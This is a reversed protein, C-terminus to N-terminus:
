NEVADRTDRVTEPAARLVWVSLVGVCALLWLLCILIVSMIFFGWHCRAFPAAGL